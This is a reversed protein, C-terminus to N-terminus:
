STLSRFVEVDLEDLWARMKIVLYHRKPELEIVQLNEAVTGTILVVDKVHKLWLELCHEKVKADHLESFNTAPIIL